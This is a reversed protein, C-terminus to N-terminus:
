RSMICISRNVGAVECVEKVTIYALDKRELLKLLAEDM